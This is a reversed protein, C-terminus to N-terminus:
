PVPDYGGKCFPQCRAIRYAGYFVGKIAGHKEIAEITYQSCSPTFRCQAGLWSVLLPSVFRQYVRIMGIALKSM